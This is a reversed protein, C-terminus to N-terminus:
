YVEQMKSKDSKKNNINDRTKYAYIHLMFFNRLRQTICINTSFLERM